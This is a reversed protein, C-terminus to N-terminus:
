KDIVVLVSSIGTGSEKFTGAPIDIQEGGLGDFWARFEQAKRTNNFFPSPSMISVLRGDPALCDFAKRVHDIDQMKEFPPNMVIRDYKNPFEAELFDRAVLKYGKLSLIERLSGQTECCDVHNGIKDVISGKGASPELVTHQDELGAYDLMQDILGDPTPFFGPISSFMLKNELERLTDAKKEAESKGKLLEWFALAVASDSAPKGQCVGSDYYGGSHNIESKALDFAAKKSTVGTLAPPVTGVDHLDALKRLGEQTRALREGDLRARGAERQRKPTNTLRDAFKHDINGQMKDALDRFKDGLGPKPGNPPTPAKGDLSAAFQEATEQEKFAFGAPTSGWKRSYWGGIDKATDRLANFEDREVRGSLIVIFMQFGHKTHTHEEITAGDISATATPAPASKGLWEAWFLASEDRDGDPTCTPSVSGRLFQYIFTSAMHGMVQEYHSNYDDPAGQAEGYTERIYDWAAARIEDSYDCDVFVYKSQPIDDQRNSYNYSDTMGDFNGYQYQKAHTEIDARMAPPQDVMRVRVSDGMSFSESKATVAVGKGRCYQKLLKAVQAQSSAARKPQIANMM